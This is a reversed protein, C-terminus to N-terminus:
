KRNRSPFLASGSRQDRRWLQKELQFADDFRKRADLRQLSHIKVEPGSFDVGQHAFVPSTFRGQHLDEEAHLGRIRTRDFDIAVAFDGDVIWSVSERQSNAQYALLWAQNGLEINRLVNEESFGIREVHDLSRLELCFRSLNQLRESRPRETVVRTEVRPIASSCTTSIARVNARPALIMPNSSGM